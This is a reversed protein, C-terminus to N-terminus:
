RVIKEAQERTEVLPVMVGMAGMDLVRAIFHYETAPVRVFPVVDPLPTSAILRRITEVSWGSHEMDCLVFEAGAVAAIRMIGPSNFEFLFTGLVTEGAQLKAKVPNQLM